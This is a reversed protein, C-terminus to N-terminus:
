QRHSAAFLRATDRGHALVLVRLQECLEICVELRVCRQVCGLGNKRQRRLVEGPRPEPFSWHRRPVTRLGYGVTELDLHRSATADHRINRLPQGRHQQVVDIAERM